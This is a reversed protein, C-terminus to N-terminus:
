GESTFLTHKGDFSVFRRVFNFNLYSSVQSAFCFRLPREELQALYHLRCGDLDPNLEIQICDCEYQVFAM